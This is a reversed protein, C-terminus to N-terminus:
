NVKNQPKGELFSAMNSVFIEQKNIRAEATIFGIAPLLMCSSYQKIKDLNEKSMEDGHDSVFTIDGKALRTALADTNTVEPPVTSIVVAGAKILPITKENLLNETEPAQAVNVSIYDSEALLAELEKYTFQSEKKNRSWYSVNAGFGAALEAVRGGISGLGIVGFNSNKLERASM